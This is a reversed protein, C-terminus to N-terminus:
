TEWISSLYDTFPDRDIEDFALLLTAQTQKQDELAKVITPLARKARARVQPDKESNLAALFHRIEVAGRLGFHRIKDLGNDL